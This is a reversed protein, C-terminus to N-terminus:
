KKHVVRKKTNLINIILLPAIGEQQKLFFHVCFKNRWACCNERGYAVLHSLLGFICNGVPIQVLLTFSIFFWWFVLHFMPVSCLCHLVVMPSAGFDNVGRGVHRFCSNWSQEAVLNMMTVLCCAFSSLGAKKIESNISLVSDVFARLDMAFVRCGVLGDVKHPHRAQWTGDAMAPSGTYDAKSRRWTASSM